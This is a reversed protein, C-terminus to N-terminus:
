APAACCRAVGKTGIREVRGDAILTTSRARAPSRPSLEARGHLAGRAVQQHDYIALWVLDTVIEHEAQGALSKRAQTSALEYYTAAVAGRPSVFGSDGPGQAGRGPRASGRARLAALVSTGARAAARACISSWPAGCRGIATPRARAIRQIKKQYSRLALGFMDAAVKRAVGQAELERAAGPVGSRRDAGAARPHGAATSLQAILLTTQRVIADILHRTDM